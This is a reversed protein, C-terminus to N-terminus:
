QFLNQSERGKHLSTDRNERGPERPETAIRAFQPARSNALLHPDAAHYPEQKDYNGQECRLEFKGPHLVQSSCAFAVPCHGWASVSRGVGTGCM